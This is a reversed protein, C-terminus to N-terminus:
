SSILGADIMSIQMYAIGAKITKIYPIIRDM